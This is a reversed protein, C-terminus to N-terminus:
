MRAAVNVADGIVTMHHVSTGIIAATVDGSNHHHPFLNSISILEGSEIRPTSPEHQALLDMARGKPGMGHAHPPMPECMGTISVQM